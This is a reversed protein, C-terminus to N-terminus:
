AAVGELAAAVAARARHLRSMITGKRVRLARAAEKYSLGMVDVAVITERLRPSLEAVAAFAERAELASGQPDASPDAVFELKEPEFAVSRRAHASSRSNIWTNRLARMLYAGDDEHRLLRPRRLVRAYTEQVLDEADHKTGCLALAARLMRDLHDPLRSVDLERAPAGDRLSDAPMPELTVAAEVARM